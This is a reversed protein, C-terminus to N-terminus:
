FSSLITWVFSAVDSLIWEPLALDPFIEATKHEKLWQAPYVVIKDIAPSLYAGWWSFTSNGIINHDCCSMLYMQEWDKADNPVKIFEIRHKIHERIKNIYDRSVTEDDEAECFYLLKIKDFEINLNKVQNIILNIANIYYETELIYHVDRTQKFDGMRIHMSIIMDNKNKYFLYNYKDKTAAIQENIKLLEIIQNRTEQFYKYSLYYGNLKVHMNKSYRMLDDYKGFNDHHNYDWKYDGYNSVCNDSIEKFVSDFYLHRAHYNEKNTQMAFLEADNHLVLKSNTRLAYDIVTFIQFLQNGLGYRYEITVIKEDCELSQRFSVKNKISRPINLMRVIMISVKNKISRLVNLMKVIM